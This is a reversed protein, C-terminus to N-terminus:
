LARRHVVSVQHPEDNHNAYCKYDRLMSTVGCPVDNCEYCIQGTVRMM